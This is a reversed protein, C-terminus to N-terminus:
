GSLVLLPAPYGLIVFTFFFPFFSWMLTRYVLLPRSSWTVSTVLSCFAFWYCLPLLIPFHYSPVLFLFLPFTTILCSLTWIAFLACFLSWHCFSHPLASLLPYFVHWHSWPVWWWCKWGGLENHWTIVEVTHPNIGSIRSCVSKKRQVVVGQGSCTTLSSM